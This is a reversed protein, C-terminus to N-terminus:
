LFWEVDVVRFALSGTIAAAADTAKTTRAYMARQRTASHLGAQSGLISTPEKPETNDRFEVKADHAPKEKTRLPNANLLHWEIRAGKIEPM